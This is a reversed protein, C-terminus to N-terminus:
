RPATFRRSLPPFAVRLVFYAVLGLAALYRHWDPMAAGVYFALVLLAMRLVAVYAVLALSDRDAPEDMGMCRLTFAQPEWTM